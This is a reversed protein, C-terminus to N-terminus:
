FADGHARQSVGPTTKLVELQGLLDAARAFWFETGRAAGSGALVAFLRELTRAQQALVDTAIAWYDDAYAVAEPRTPVEATRRADETRVLEVRTDAPLAHLFVCVILPWSLMPAMRDLRALSETARAAAEPNEVKSQKALQWVRFVLEGGGPLAGDYTVDELLPVDPRTEDGWQSLMVQGLNLLGVDGPLAEFAALRRDEDGPESSRRRYSDAMVLGGSYGTVRTEAYAAVAAHWGLGARELNALAGRAATSFRVDVVTQGDDDVADGIRLDSLQFLPQPTASAHKRWMLIVRRDVELYTDFGM